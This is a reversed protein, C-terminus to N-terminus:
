RALCLSHRILVTGPQLSRPSVCFSPFAKALKVCRSFGWSQALKHARVDYKHWKQVIFWLVLSHKRKSDFSLRTPFLGFKVDPFLAQPHWSWSLVRLLHERCKELVPGYQVKSPSEPNHQGKRVFNRNNKSTSSCHLHSISEWVFGFDVWRLSPIQTQFCLM